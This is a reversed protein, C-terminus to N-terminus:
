REEAQISYQSAQISIVVPRRRVRVRETNPRILAAPATDGDNLGVVTAAKFHSKLESRILDIVEICNVRGKVVKGCALKMFWHEDKSVRFFRVGKNDPPITFMNSVIPFTEKKNKNFCGKVTIIDTELALAEFKTGDIVETDPRRRKM